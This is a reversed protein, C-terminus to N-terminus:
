YQDSGIVEANARTSLARFTTGRNVTEKISIVRGDCFLFQVIGPHKSRFAFGSRWNGSDNRLGSNATHSTIPFNLPVTSGSTTGNPNPWTFWDCSEYLTEGVAYTNSTGDTIDRISTTGGSRNMIGTETGGEGYGNNVATPVTPWPWYAGDDNHNDGINGLYSLKPGQNCNLGVGTDARGIPSFNPSPDSPCAMVTLLSM